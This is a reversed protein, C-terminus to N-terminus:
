ENLLENKEFMKDIESNILEQNESQWVEYWEKDGMDKGSSVWGMNKSDEGNAIRLIFQWQNQIINVLNLMDDDIDSATLLLIQRALKTGAHIEPTRKERDYSKARMVSIAFYTYPNNKNKLWNKYKKIASKGMRFEEGTGMMYTLHIFYEFVIRSSVYTWQNRAASYLQKTLSDDKEPIQFFNASCSFDTYHLQLLLGFAKYIIKRQFDLSFSQVSKTDFINKVSLLMIKRGRHGWYPASLIADMRSVLENNDLNNLENETLKNINETNM